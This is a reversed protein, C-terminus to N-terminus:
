FATNGKPCRKILDIIADISNFNRSELEEFPISIGFELSIESIIATIALSDLIGDDVLTDSITLDIGPLIEDLIKILQERM